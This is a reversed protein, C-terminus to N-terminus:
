KAICLDHTRIEDAGGYERLSAKNFAQNIKGISIFTPKAVAARELGSCQQIPYIEGLFM